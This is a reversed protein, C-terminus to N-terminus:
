IGPLRMESVESTRGRLRQRPREQRHPLLCCVNFTPVCGTPTQACQILLASAMSCACRMTFTDVRMCSAPAIWCTDATRVIPLPEPHDAPQRRTAAPVDVLWSVAPAAGFFVAGAHMLAVLAVIAWRWTWRTAQRSEDREAVRRAPLTKRHLPLTLGTGELRDMRELLVLAQDSPAGQDVARTLLDRAREVEGASTRM